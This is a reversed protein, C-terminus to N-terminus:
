RPSVVGFPSTHRSPTENTPCVSGSRACQKYIATGSDVWREGSPNNHSKMQFRVRLRAETIADDRGAGGCLCTEVDRANFVEAESSSNTLM